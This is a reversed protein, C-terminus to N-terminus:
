DNATVSIGFQDIIAGPKTPDVSMIQMVTVPQSPKASITISRPDKLYANIAAVVKATFDPNNLQAMGLQVIAGANAVMTAEDMGQMAAILPLVKKTISADEFRLVVRGIQIGQIQPMLKGMDPETGPESKQLEAIVALPVAAVAVGIKLTGMDKAAYYGDIDLGFNTGDNSITGGGGIEFSLTTYGLKKLTGTPDVQTLAAEPIVINSIKGSTKGSGTEADGDWTMEIGDSTFTHGGAALTIPGSTMKEAINMSARFQDAPTPNDGLAKVHWGEATASPMDITFAGEPGTVSVKTDEYEATGIEFMGDGEDSIDSLSLSGIDLTANGGGGEVPLTFKLGEIVIEGDASTTISEYAPKAKFQSEWNKLIAQVAPPEDAALAPLPALYCLATFALATYRINM